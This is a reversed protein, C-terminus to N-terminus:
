RYRRRSDLRRIYRGISEVVRKPLIMKFFRRFFLGTPGVTIGEARDLYYAALKPDNELFDEGGRYIMSLYLSAHKNGAKESEKLFRLGESKQIESGHVMALVGYRYTGKENGTDAARKAYTLALNIDNREKHEEDLYLRSLSLLAPPYEQEAAKEYCDIAKDLHRPGKEALLYYTGLNYLAPAYGLDAAKKLWPLGGGNGKSDMFFTLAHLAPAFNSSAARKFWMEAADSDKPFHIGHQLLLGVFTQMFPDGDTAQGLITEIPEKEKM